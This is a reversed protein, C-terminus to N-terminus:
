KEPLFVVSNAAFSATARVIINKNTFGRRVSTGNRIQVSMTGIKKPRRKRHIIIVPFHLSNGLHHCMLTIRNQHEVYRSSRPLV